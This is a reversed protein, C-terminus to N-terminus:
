PRELTLTKGRYDITVVFDKLFANGINIGWVKKDRGTGKAFFIVASDNLSIGGITVNGIKGERNGAIGNYGVSETGQAKSVEEELGLYSVAAPTLKFVGDSGIDLNGIMKKGNVTVEDILINDEYRFPLVTQRSNNPQNIAEHPQSKTYFRVMHKPYDIQMIRSNLLSHGLIGKIPKGLRQSVESLDIAVAQVNKATLRGIELLPLKTEYALNVRTGGGAGQQGIPNLKLGIEKATNLDIASPDTGTDLMMQFAGKGSVKVELIIENRYFDFPVEIIQEKSTTHAFASVCWLAILQCIALVPVVRKKM